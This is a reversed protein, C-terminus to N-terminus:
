KKMARTWPSRGAKVMAAKRVIGAEAASSRITRESPYRRGAVSASHRRNMNKEAKLVSSGNRSITHPWDRVVPPM